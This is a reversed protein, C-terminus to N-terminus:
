YMGPSAVAMRSKAFKSKLADAIISAPDTAKTKRPPRRIPTGGPSRLLTLLLVNSILRYVNPYASLRFIIPLM